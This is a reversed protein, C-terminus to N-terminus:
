NFGKNALDNPLKRPFKQEIIAKNPPEKMFYSVEHETLGSLQLLTHIKKRDELEQIQKAFCNNFLFNQFDYKGYIDSM